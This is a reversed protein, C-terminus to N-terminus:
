RRKDARAATQEFFSRASPDANGTYLDSERYRGVAFRLIVGAAAAIPVATILGTFGFLSGFALLAFILWVPHLGVSEGVLKPSLINGEIFQGALFVGIAEFLLRWQPWDQVIAVSVSLVLATLSGVYPVFSLVGATLGILLGFNLGILSLGIGYWLGLFLCVLSQGRLFGALATDIERALEAVTDQHRPPVLNYITAVMKDWDLLLYFAVVPTVVLLSMLSILAAGNTWASKLLSAAWAAAEPLLDTTSKRIDAAADAGLGLKEAVVGGYDRVLRAGEESILDALRSGYAPLAEIFSALQSGLVPVILVLSAVGLFIFGAMIVFTAGLRSLGLKQLWDAVPDLLYGLAVAAVFPLLVGSFLWLLLILLVFAGVWFGVQWDIRM